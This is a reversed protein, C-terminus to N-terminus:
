VNIQCRSFMECLFIYIEKSYKRCLSFWKLGRHHVRARRQPVLQRLDLAEARRRLVAEEERVLVRLAAHPQVRAAGQLVVEEPFIYTYLFEEEMENTRSQITGNRNNEQKGSAQHRASSPQPEFYGMRQETGLRWCGGPGPASTSLHM